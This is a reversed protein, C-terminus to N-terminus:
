HAGASIEAIEVVSEVVEGGFGEDGGIWRGAGLLFGVGREVGFLEAVVEIALVLLLIEIGWREGRFFGVCEGFGFVVEAFEQAQEGFVFHVFEVAGETFNERCAANGVGCFECDVTVGDEQEFGRCFGWVRRRRESGSRKGKAYKFIWFERNSSLDRSEGTLLVPM